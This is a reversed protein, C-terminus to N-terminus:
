KTVELAMIAMEEDMKVVVIGEEGFWVPPVRRKM